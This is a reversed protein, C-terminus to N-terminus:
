RRLHIVKSEGNVTLTALNDCEGDGFDLIREAYGEPQISM